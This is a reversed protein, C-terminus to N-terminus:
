PQTWHRFCRARRKFIWHGIPAHFWKQRNWLLVKLAIIWFKVLWNLSDKAQIFAKEQMRKKRLHLHVSEPITTAKAMAVQGWHQVQFHKLICRKSRNGTRTCRPGVANWKIRTCNREELTELTETKSLIQTGNSSGSPHHQQQPPDHFRIAFTDINNPCPPSPGYVLWLSVCLNKYFFMRPSLVCDGSTNKNRYGNLDAKENGKWPSEKGSHETVKMYKDYGLTFHVTEAM